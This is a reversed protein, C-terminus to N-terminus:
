CIWLARRFISANAWIERESRCLHSYLLIQRLAVPTPIGGVGHCEIRSLGVAQNGHARSAAMSRPPLADSSPAPQLRQRRNDTEFSTQQISGRHASRPSGDRSCESRPLYPQRCRSRSLTVPISVTSYRHSLSQCGSASASASWCASACSWACVPFYSRIQASSFRSVRTETNRYRARLRWNCDNRNCPNRM